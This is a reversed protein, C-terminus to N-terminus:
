EYRRRRAKAEVPEELTYASQWHFDWRPIDLLVRAGPTGPNLEVRISTGLLHMHGAVVHITPRVSSRGIARPRRRRSRAQRREQRVSLLLDARCSAASGYKRDLEALAADRNCLRGPEGKVCALEVPAPLLMTQSRVEPREAARAHAGCALSRADRGNLLNYHVQM